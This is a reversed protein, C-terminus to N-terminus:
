TKGKVARSKSVMDLFSNGIGFIGSIDLEAVNLTVYIHIICRVRYSVKEKEYVGPDWSLSLHWGDHTQGDRNVLDLYDGVLMGPLRDGQHNYIANLQCNLDVMIGLITKFRGAEVQVVVAQM